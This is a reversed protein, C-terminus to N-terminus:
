APILTALKVDADAAQAESIFTGAALLKRAAMHDAVSNISEVASLHEGHFRFVSFKGVTTDGRVVVSDSAHAVGAIQLRHEGQDSWFWPVKAYAAPKGAILARELYYMSAAWAATLAADPTMLLGSLFFFPLVQALVLAAPAVTEGYLNRTLRYTFASAVLACIFAGIRVGFATQGFAATGLRILWAVLPPHDLYGIDLHRAYNWYYTEEPLLEVAGLYVLRLVVAYVVLGIALAQPRTDGRASSRVLSFGASTVALGALVAFVISIQAPWGWASSLLGLVGGRLLLAMCMVALMRGHKGGEHAMLELYRARGAKSKEIIRATVRDVVPHLNM